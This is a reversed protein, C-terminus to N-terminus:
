RAWGNEDLTVEAELPLEDLDIRLEIVDDILIEGPPGTPLGLRLVGTGTLAGDPLEFALSGARPVGTILRQRYFSTGRDTATFRRDGITLEAFSLIDGDQAEVTAAELDVVLWTGEASWGDADAVRRAAHVDTITVALNRSTAPEDLEAVVPFAALAADDPLTAKSLGWAGALLVFTLSWVLIKKKM